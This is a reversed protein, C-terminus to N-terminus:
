GAAVEASSESEGGNEPPLEIEAPEEAPPNKKAQLAALEKDHLAAKQKIIRMYAGTGAPILRGVIVNEKL